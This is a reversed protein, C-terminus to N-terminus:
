FVKKSLLSFDIFKDAFEIVIKIAQLSDDNLPSSKVFKLM